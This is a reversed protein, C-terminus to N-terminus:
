TKLRSTRQNSRGQNRAPQQRNRQSPAFSQRYAPQQYNHPMGSLHTRSQHDRMSPPIYAQYPISTAQQKVQQSLRNVLLGQEKYKTMLDATIKEHEQLVTSVLEFEEKTNQLQEAHNAIGAARMSVQCEAYENYSKTFDTVFQAWTKAAVTCNKWIKCDDVFTQTENFRLYGNNTMGVDTIPNGGELAFEQCLLM